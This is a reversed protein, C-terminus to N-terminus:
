KTYFCDIGVLVDLNCIYNIIEALFYSHEAYEVLKTFFQWKHKIYYALTVFFCVKRYLVQSKLSLHMNKTYVQLAFRISYFVVQKSPIRYTKSSNDVFNSLIIYGTRNRNPSFVIARLCVKSFEVIISLRLWFIRNNLMNSSNQSFNDSTSSMIPSLWSSVCKEIYVRHNWSFFCTRPIRKCLSVFAISYSSNQPFGILKRLTILWIM